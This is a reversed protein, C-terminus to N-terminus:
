EDLCPPREPVSPPPCPPQIIDLPRNLWSSNFIHIDGTSVVAPFHAHHGGGLAHHCEVAQAEAESHLHLGSLTDLGVSCVIVMLAIILFCKHM